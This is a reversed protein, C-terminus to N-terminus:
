NYTILTEMNLSMLLAKLKCLYDIATAYEIIDPHHDITGWNRISEVLHLRNKISSTKNTAYSTYDPANEQGNDALEM